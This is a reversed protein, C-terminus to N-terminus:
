GGEAPTPVYPPPRGGGTGVFMDPRLSLVFDPARELDCAFSTAPDLVLEFTETFLYSDRGPGVLLKVEHTTAKELSRDVGQILVDVALSPEIGGEGVLLTIADSCLDDVCVVVVPDVGEPVAIPEAARLAILAGRQECRFADDPATFALVPTRCGDAACALSVERVETFVPARDLTDYLSIAALYTGRDCSLGALDVDFGFSGEDGEELVPSGAFLPQDTCHSDVCARVWLTSPDVGARVAGPANLVFRASSPCALDPEGDPRRRCRKKRPGGEDSGWDDEEYDDDCGTGAAFFCTALLAPVFARRLVSPLLSATM